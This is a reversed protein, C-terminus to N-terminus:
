DKPTTKIEKKVEELNTNNKKLVWIIFNTGNSGFPSMASITWGRQLLQNIPEFLSVFIKKKGDVDAIHAEPAGDGFDISAVYKTSSKVFVGLQIYVDHKEQSFASISLFLM